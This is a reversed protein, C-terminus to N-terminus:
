SKCLTRLEDISGNFLDKDCHGIIGPIIASDSMQWFTYQDWPKPIHPANVGYNAVWLPYKKLDEPNGIENIFSPSAYIIPILGTKDEVIKLFQLAMAIQNAVSIGDHSEFDLVCPLDGKQLDGVVSLFHNAQTIPNLNPHFFHYAGVLLGVSRADDRRKLFTPDIYTTGETAKLFVFANQKAVDSWNSIPDGHYIDLGYVPKQSIPKETPKQEIPTSEAIPTNQAVASKKFLSLFWAIIKEFM